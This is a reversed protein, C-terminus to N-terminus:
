PKLIERKARHCGLVQCIAHEIYWTKQKGIRLNGLPAECHIRISELRPMLYQRYRAGTHFFAKDFNSLQLRDKMQKFVRGSWEVVENSTMENLTLNYPDIKDDPLLLGYKASLIVVLDYNKTAYRYAKRFLDSASYMESAKCTFVQKRKTCSILGLSKM